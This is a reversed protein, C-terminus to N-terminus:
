NCFSSMGTTYVDEDEVDYEELAGIGFGPAVKGASTCWSILLILRM